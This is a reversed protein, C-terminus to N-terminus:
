GQFILMVYAGFLVLHIAGRLVNARGRSFTVLSVTLTLGLVVANASQLGLVIKEGTFQSLAIMAPITLGITSIVSGLLINM